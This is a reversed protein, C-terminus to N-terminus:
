PSPFCSFPILHFNYSIPLLFFSHPLKDLQSFHFLPPVYFFYTSKLTATKQRTDPDYSSVQVVNNTEKCIQTILTNAGQESSSEDM